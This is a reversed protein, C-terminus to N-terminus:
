YSDTAFGTLFTGDAQLRYKLGEEAFFSEIQENHIAM